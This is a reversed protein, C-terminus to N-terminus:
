ACRVPGNERSSIPFSVSSRSTRDSWNSRKSRARISCRVTRLASTRRREVDGPNPRAIDAAASPRRVGDPVPLGIWGADAFKKYAEKFGPPTAVEGNKWTCGSKDGTRNLPDLVGSAFAAAEGLVSDLVDLTEGCGPLAAVGDIGALERLAFQMDRLPARYASM